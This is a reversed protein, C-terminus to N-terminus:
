SEGRWMRMAFSWAVIPLLMAIGTASAVVQPAIGRDIAQGATWSAIAVM